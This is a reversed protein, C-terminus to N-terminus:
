KEKVPIAIVLGAFRPTKENASGFKTHCGVCGAGLPIAGARYYYGKEVREFSAKGAALEAAAKKEFETEPEHHISMAPTNVAIWRAKMGSEKDIADFVDEMARAPLVARDRRFYHHHVADLTASYIGHMLKARDKATEVSVRPDDAKKDADGKAQGAPGPTSHPPDANLTLATVLVGTGAALTALRIPASTMTRSWISTRHPPIRRTGVRGPEAEQTRGASPIASLVTWYDVLM